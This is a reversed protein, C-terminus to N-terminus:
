VLASRRLVIDLQRDVASELERDLRPLNWPKAGRAEILRSVPDRMRPGVAGGERINGRYNRGTQIVASTRQVQTFRTTADMMKGTWYFYPNSPSADGAPRNRRYYDNGARRRTRRSASLGAGGHLAAARRQITTLAHQYGRGFRDEWWRRQADPLKKEFARFVDPWMFRVGHMVVNIIAHAAAESRVTVTTVAM